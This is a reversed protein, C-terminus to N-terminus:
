DCNFGIHKSENKQLKEKKCFGVISDLSPKKGYLVEDITIKLMSKGLFM